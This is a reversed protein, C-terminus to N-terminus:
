KPRILLHWRASLESLRVYHIRGGYGIMTAMGTTTNFSKLKHQDQKQTWALFRVYIAGVIPQTHGHEVYPHAM